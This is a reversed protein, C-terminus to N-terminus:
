VGDPLPQERETGRGRRRARGTHGDGAPAGGNRRSRSPYASRRPRWGSAPHPRQAVPGDIRVGMFSPQAWSGFNQLAFVPDRIDLAWAGIYPGVRLAM